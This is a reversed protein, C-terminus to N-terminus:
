CQCGGLISGVRVYSAKVRSDMAYVGATASMFLISIFLLILTARISKRMM